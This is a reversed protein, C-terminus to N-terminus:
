IMFRQVCPDIILYVPIVEILKGTAFDEVQIQLYLDTQYQLALLPDELLITM